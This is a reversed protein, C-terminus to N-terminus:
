LAVEIKQNTCPRNIGEGMTAIVAIEEVSPVGPIQYPFSKANGRAIAQQYLKSQVDGDGKVVLLIGNIDPGKNEVTVSGGAASTVDIDIGTCSLKAAAVGGEKSQIEEQVGKGWLSIVVVSVVVLSTLIVTAILPGGDGKKHLKAKKISM